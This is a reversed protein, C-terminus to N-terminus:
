GHEDTALNKGAAYSKREVVTKIWLFQRSSIVEMRDPRRLEDIEHLLSKSRLYNLSM